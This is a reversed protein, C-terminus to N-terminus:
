RPGPGTIGACRRTGRRAQKNKREQCGPEEWQYLTPLVHGLDKGPVVEIRTLRELIAQLRTVQGDQYADGSEQDASSDDADIPSIKPRTPHVAIQEFAEKSVMGPHGRVGFFIM